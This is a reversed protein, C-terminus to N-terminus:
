GFGSKRIIAINSLLAPLLEFYTLSALTAPPSFSMILLTPLKGFTIVEVFFMTFCTLARKVAILLLIVPTLFSILFKLELILWIICIIYIKAARKNNRWERLDRSEARM